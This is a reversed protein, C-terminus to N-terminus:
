KFMFMIEKLTLQGRKKELQCKDQLEFISQIFEKILKSSTKRIAETFKEKAELYSGLKYLVLAIYLNIHGEVEEKSSFCSSINLAKSWLLTVKSSRRSCNLVKSVLSVARVIATCSALVLDCSAFSLTM